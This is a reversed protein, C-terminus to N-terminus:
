KQPRMDKITLLPAEFLGQPTKPHRQGLDKTLFMALDPKRQEGMSCQCKRRMAMAPHPGGLTCGADMAKTSPESICLGEETQSTCRSTEIIKKGRRGNEAQNTKRVQTSPTAQSPTNPKEATGTNINQLMHDVQSTMLDGCVLPVVPTSCIQTSTRCYPVDKLGTGM